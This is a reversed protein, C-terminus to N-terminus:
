LSLFDLIARYISVAQSMQGKMWEISEKGYNVLSSSNRDKVPNETNVCETDPLCDNARADATVFSSPSFVFSGFYALAKEAKNILSTTISNNVGETLDTAIDQEDEEDGAMIYSNLIERTTAGVAGSQELGFQNQLKVIAAKTLEGFYGTILGEPYVAQGFDVLREQLCKVGEGSDGLILDIVILCERDLEDSSKLRGFIDQYDVMAHVFNWGIQDTPDVGFKNRYVALSDAFYPGELMECFGKVICTHAEWDRDSAPLRGTIAGFFGLARQEDSLSISPLITVSDIVSEDVGGSTESERIVVQAGDFQSFNGYELGNNILHTAKSFKINAVGAALVDFKVEVLDGSNYVANKEVYAGIDLIGLSNDFYNGPLSNAFTTGITYSNVKLLNSPYTVVARVTDIPTAGPKVTFIVILSDGVMLEEDSSVMDIEAATGAFVSGLPSLTWIFMLMVTLRFRCGM